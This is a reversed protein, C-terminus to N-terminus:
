SEVVLRYYISKGATESEREIKLVDGPSAEIEKVVPDSSFIKPLQEEKINLRKLIEEKEKESLITHKPVAKHETVKIM